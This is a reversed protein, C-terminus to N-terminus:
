ARMSFRHCLNKVYGTSTRVAYRDIPARQARVSGMARNESQQPTVGGGDVARGRTQLGRAMALRRLTAARDAAGVVHHPCRDQVAKIPHDYGASEGFETGPVAVRRIHDMLVYAAASLM